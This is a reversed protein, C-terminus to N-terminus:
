YGNNDVIRETNNLIYDTHGFEKYFFYLAYRIFEDYETLDTIKYKDSIEKPINGNEQHNIIIYKLLMDFKSLIITNTFRHVKKSFKINEIMTFVPSLEYSNIQVTRNFQDLILEDILRNPIQEITKVKAKNISNSLNNTNVLDKNYLSKIFYFDKLEMNQTYLRVPYGVALYEESIADARIFEGAFGRLNNIFSLANGDIDICLVGISFQKSFDTPEVKTSFVKVTSQNLKEIFIDKSVTYYINHYTIFACDKYDTIHQKVNDFVFDIFAKEQKVRNYVDFLINIYKETETCSFYRNFNYGQLWEVIDKKNAYLVETLRKIFKFYLQVDTSISDKLIDQIEQRNERLYALFAIKNDIIFRVLSVNYYETLDVKYLKDKYVNSLLDVLFDTHKVSQEVAEKYKNETKSLKSLIKFAQLCYNLKSAYSTASNDTSISHVKNYNIYTLHETTFMKETESKKINLLSFDAETPYLCTNFKGYKRYLRYSTDTYLKVVYENAKILLEKDCQIINYKLM